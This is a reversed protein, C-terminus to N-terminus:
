EEKEFIKQSNYDSQKGNHIKSDKDTNVTFWATFRFTTINCTYIIQPVNVAKGQQTKWEMFAIYKKM